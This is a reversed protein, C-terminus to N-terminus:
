KLAALRATLSDEEEAAAATQQQPAKRAPAAPAKASIDVGIEDLVQLLTARGDRASAHRIPARMRLAWCYSLDRIVAQKGHTAQLCQTNGFGYAPCDSFALLPFHITQLKRSELTFQLPLYAM